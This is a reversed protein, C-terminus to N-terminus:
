PTQDPVRGSEQQSLAAFLARAVVEHGQQTLHVNSRFYLRDSSSLVQSQKQIAPTADVYVYGLRGAQGAFYDRLTGSYARLVTEVAPDEFRSQDVYATYASPVYVLVPMFGHQASLAMWEELAEDFLGTSLQGEVLWRAYQVEDRDGNESNFELTEGDSFRVEYRFDIEDKTASYSLAHVAGSLLNYAYSSRRLFTGDLLEHVRCM